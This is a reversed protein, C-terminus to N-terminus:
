ATRPGCALVAAMFEGERTLVRHGVAYVGVHIRHLKGDAVRSRIASATWDLERLQSLGVGGHQRAALAALAADSRPVASETWSTTTKRRVGRAHVIAQLLPTRKAVVGHRAPLLKM